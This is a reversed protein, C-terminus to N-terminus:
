IANAQTELASIDEGRHYAQYIQDMLARRRANQAIMEALSGAESAPEYNLLRSVTPQSIQLAKAIARQSMGSESMRKVSDVQNLTKRDM